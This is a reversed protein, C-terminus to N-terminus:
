EAREMAPRRGGPSTGRAAARSSLWRPLAGIDPLVADALDALYEAPAPGSLVAVTCMGAARGAALDHRSDGVMVVAAPPIRHQRAFALLMGPDPKAGHGSDHGAVFGFAGRVGATRLHTEVSAASDNSAVGLHLGRALLEALVPVLSAVEVPPTAAAHREALATLRSLDWADGLLPLLAGLIEEPTGSVLPGDAAFGGDRPDFGIRRGLAAAAAADGPALDHLLRQVWVGWTARFDFLTGDKDFVIGRIM